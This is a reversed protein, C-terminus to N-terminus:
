DRVSDVGVMVLEFVKAELSAVHQALMLAVAEAETQGLPGWNYDGDAQDNFRARWGHGAFEQRVRGIEWTTLRGDSGYSTWHGNHTEVRALVGAVDSHTTTIM